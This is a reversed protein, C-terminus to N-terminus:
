CPLLSLYCMSDKLLVARLLQLTEQHNRLWKIYMLWLICLYKKENQPLCLYTFAVQLILDIKQIVAWVVHYALDKKVNLHVEFKMKIQNLFSSFTPCTLGFGLRLWMISCRNSSNTHLKKLIACSSSTNSSLQLCVLYVSVDNGLM